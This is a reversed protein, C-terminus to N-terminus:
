KLCFGMSCVVFFFSNRRVKLAEFRFDSGRRYCVSGITNKSRNKCVFYLVIDRFVSSRSVSSPPLQTGAALESDYQMKATFRTTIELLIIEICLVWSSPSHAAAIAVVLRTFVHYLRCSDTTSSEFLGIYSHNEFESTRSREDVLSSNSSEDMRATFSGYKAFTPLKSRVSISFFTKTIKFTKKFAARRAAATLM